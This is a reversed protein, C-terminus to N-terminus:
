AAASTPARPLVISIRLGKTEKLEAGISGGHKLVARRAIALGLGTGETEKAGPARGRYFPEFIRDLDSAAVGEGEDDFDIRVRNESESIRVAVQSNAPSHRIANRLVNEFASTLVGPYGPVSVGPEGALLVTVDEIALSRCEFNADAVAAELLAHLDVDVKPEAEDATLRSFKLLQGILGDLRETEKDIRSLEPLDGASRRALELAVRLRALPSRLEHSVNRTLETQQEAAQELKQAMADLDRALRGIEDHRDRMSASVRTSFDGDAIALTADRFSKVPNTIARALAFSVLGSIAVALLFFTPAAREAIWERYPNRKPTVFLSYVNGNPAILRTIPRAPRLNPRDDGRWQRDGRYQRRHTRGFRRLMREVIHPLPRGLLDRGNEDIVFVNIPSSSQYRRLWDALRERGGAQLAASAEEVTDNNEGFSTYAQRLRESYAYGAVAALGVLIGIVLWFSFFIRLTLNRM